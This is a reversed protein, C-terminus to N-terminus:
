YQGNEDKRGAILMALLTMLKNYHEEKVPIPINYEM